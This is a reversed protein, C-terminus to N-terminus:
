KYGYISHELNLMLITLSPFAVANKENRVPPLVYVSVYYAESILPDLMAVNFALNRLVNDCMTM